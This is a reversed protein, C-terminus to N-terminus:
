RQGAGRYRFMLTAVKHPLEIQEGKVWGARQKAGIAALNSSRPEAVVRACDPDAALLADPVASLLRSGFGRGTDEVAAIATHMGLDTGAAPYYGALPDLAPRYIEVYAFLRGEHSVLCPRSRLGALQTRIEDTWRGLPWDQGWGAALHPRNMWQHVLGIDEATDRVTRLSWPAGLVPVPPPAM